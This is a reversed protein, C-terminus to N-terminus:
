AFVGKINKNYYRGPSEAALLNEFIYPPVDPHFYTRGSTFEIELVCTDPDYGASAIAGSRLPRSTTAM